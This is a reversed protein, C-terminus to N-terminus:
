ITEKWHPAAADAWYKTEAMEICKRIDKPEMDCFQCPTREPCIMCRDYMHEFFEALSYILNAIYPTNYYYRIEARLNDFPSFHGQWEDYQESERIARLYKATIENIISKPNVSYVQAFDIQGFAFMRTLHNTIEDRILRDYKTPRGNHRM